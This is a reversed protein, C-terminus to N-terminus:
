PVNPGSTVRTWEQGPNAVSFAWALVGLCHKTTCDKPVVVDFMITDGRIWYHFTTPTRDGITFTHDNVIKYPGNDVQQGNQDYSNFEGDPWFTHSHETPPKADACPDSPDWNAPLPANEPLKLTEGVDLPILDEIWGEDVGARDHLLDEEFGMARGPTPNADREGIPDPKPLGLDRRRELHNLQVGRYCRPRFGAAFTENVASGESPEPVDEDPILGLLIRQRRLLM